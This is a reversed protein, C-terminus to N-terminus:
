FGARWATNMECLFIGSYNVKLENLHKTGGEPYLLVNVQRRRVPSIALNATGLM